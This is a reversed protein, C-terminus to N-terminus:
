GQGRERRANPELKWADNFRKIRLKVDAVNHAAQKVLALWADAELTLEEITLPALIIDLEGLPINPDSATTAGPAQNDSQAVANGALVLALLVVSLIRHVLTM